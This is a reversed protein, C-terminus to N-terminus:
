HFIRCTHSYIVNNNSFRWLVLLGVCLLETLTFFIDATLTPPRQPLIPEMSVEMERSSIKMVDVWNSSIGGVDDKGYGVSKYVSKEPPM